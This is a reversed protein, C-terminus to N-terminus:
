VPTSALMLKFFDASNKNEEQTYANILNNLVRRIIQNSYTKSRVVKIVAEVSNEAVSPIDKEYILRGGNHCDILVVENNRYTKALFHGPFNCGEIKLGCRAGTLIYILALSIPIGQKKELVYILNSNLSNYYDTDTGKLNKRNFLFESLQLENGEPFKIRFEDALNDLLESVSVTYALGYQFKVILDLMYELQKYEDPIMFISNWNQRLYKKRNKIFVLTLFNLQNQDPIIKEDIIFKELQMGYSELEVFIRRRIEENEDDVLKVLYKLQKLDSM